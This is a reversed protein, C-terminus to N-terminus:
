MVWLSFFALLISFKAQVLGYSLVGSSDDTDLPLPGQPSPLPPSLPPIRSLAGPPPANLSLHFESVFPCLCLRGFVSLLPCLHLPLALHLSPAM